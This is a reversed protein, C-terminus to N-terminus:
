VEGRETLDPRAAKVADPERYESSESKSMHIYDHCSEHVAELTARCLNHLM